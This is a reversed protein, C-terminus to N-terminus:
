QNAHTRQTRGHDHDRSQPSVEHVDDGDRSGIDMSHPSQAATVSTRAAFRGASRNSRNSNRQPATSTSRSGAWLSAPVTATCSIRIWRDPPESVM